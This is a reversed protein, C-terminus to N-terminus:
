VPGARASAARGRLTAEVTVDGGTTHCNALDAGNLEATRRARDCGDGGHVHAWAGAVAALDAAVRARHTAVVMGAAAAAVGALSVLAVIIGLSVVTAYGRDDGMGRRVRRWRHRTPQNM